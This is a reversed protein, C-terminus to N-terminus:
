VLLVRVLVDGQLLLEVFHRLMEALEAVNITVDATSFALVAARFVSLRLLKLLHEGLQDGPVLGLGLELLHLVYDLLELALFFAM